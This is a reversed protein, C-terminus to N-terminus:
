EQYDNFHILLNDGAQFASRELAKNNEIFTFASLILTTMLIGLLAMYIITEFLTM